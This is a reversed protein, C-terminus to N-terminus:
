ARGGSAHTAEVVRLGPLETRLAAVAKRRIEARSTACRRCVALAFGYPVREDAPLHLVFSYPVGPRLPAPCAACLMPAKPPAADLRHLADNVAVLVRAAHRDGRAADAIFRLADPPRCIVLDTVAITEGPAHLFAARPRM